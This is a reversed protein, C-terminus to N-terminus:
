RQVYASEGEMYWIVERRITKNSKSLRFKRPNGKIYEKGHEISETISKLHDYIPEAISKGNSDLIHKASLLWSIHRGRMTLRCWVNNHHRRMISVSKKMQIKRLM